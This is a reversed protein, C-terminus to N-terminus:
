GRNVGESYLSQMPAVADARLDALYRDYERAKDAQSLGRDPALAVDRLALILRRQVVTLRRSLSLPDSM